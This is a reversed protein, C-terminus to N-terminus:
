FEVAHEGVIKIHRDQLRHRHCAVVSRHGAFTFYSAASRISFRGAGLEIKEGLVAAVKRRSFARDPVHYAADKTGLLQLRNEHPSERRAQFATETPIKRLHSHIRYRDQGTVNRSIADEFMGVAEPLTNRDLEVKRRVVRCGMNASDKVLNERIAFLRLLRLHWERGIAAVGECNSIIGPM